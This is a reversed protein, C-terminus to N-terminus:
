HKIGGWPQVNKILEAAFSEPVPVAKREQMNFFILMAELTAVLEGTEANFMWHFHRLSKEAVAAIGTYTYFINGDLLEAVYNIRYNVAGIGLNIEKLHEYDLGYRRLALSAGQIFFSVYFQANLHGFSDCQWSDVAGRSGQYLNLKEAMELSAPFNGDLYTMPPRDNQVPDTLLEQAKDRIEQPWPLLRRNELDFFGTVSDYSAHLRGTISHILEYRVNMTKNGIGVVASRIDVPDAVRLERIFRIDDTLVVMSKKNNLIYSPTMGVAARYHHAADSIKAMYFQVNMHGWHDTEWQNVIGRYTNFFGSM